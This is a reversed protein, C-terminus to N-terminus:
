EEKTFWRSQFMKESCYPCNIGEKLVEAFSLLPGGSKQCQTPLNAKAIAEDVSSCGEMDVDFQWVCHALPSWLNVRYAVTPINNINPLTLCAYKRGQNKFDIIGKRLEEYKKVEPSNLVLEIKGMPWPATIAFGKNVQPCNLNECIFECGAPM